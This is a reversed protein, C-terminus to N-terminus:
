VSGVQGNVRAGEAVLSQTPSLVRSTAVRRSPLPVITEAVKVQVTSLAETACTSEVPRTRPTLGPDTATWTVARPWIALAESWTVGSLPWTSVTLGVAALIRTSPVCRKVATSLSRFPLVIGDVGVHLVLLLATAVTSLLPRTRPTPGPEAVM